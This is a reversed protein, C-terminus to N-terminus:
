RGKLPQIRAECDNVGATVLDAMVEMGLDSQHIGDPYIYVKPITKSFTYEEEHGILAAEWDAIVANKSSQMSRFQENFRAAIEPNYPPAPPIGTTTDIITVLVLCSSPFMDVISDYSAISQEVPLDNWADNTGLNIVVIEPNTAALEEAAPVLTNIKAGRIGTVSVAYNADLRTHLHTRINDTLSDGLVGVKTAAVNGTYDEDLCGTFSITTVLLISLLVAFKRKPHLVEEGQLAFPVLDAFHV